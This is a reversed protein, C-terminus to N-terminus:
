NWTAYTRASFVASLIDVLFLVPAAFQCVLGIQLLPVGNTLFAATVVIVALESLLLHLWGVWAKPPRLEALISLVAYTM